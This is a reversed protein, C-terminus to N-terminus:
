IGGKDCNACNCPLLILFSQWRPPVCELHMCVLLCASLSVSDLWMIEAARRLRAKRWRRKERYGGWTTLDWSKEGQKTKGGKRIDKIMWIRSKKITVFSCSWSRGGAPTWPLLGKLGESLGEGWMLAKSSGWGVGEVCQTRRIQLSQKFILSQSESAITQKVVVRIFAWINHEM